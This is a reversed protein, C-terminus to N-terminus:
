HLRMVPSYSAMSHATQGPDRPLPRSLALDFAGQAVYLRIRIAWSIHYATQDGSGLALGDAEDLLEGAAVYDHTGIGALAQVTLAYPVVFPLRHLDADDLQERSLRLAEDYHGMAALAFSFVNRFSTRTVPDGVRHLLQWM